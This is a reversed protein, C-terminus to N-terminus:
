NNIYEHQVQINTSKNKLLVQHINVNKAKRAKLRQFLNFFIKLFIDM